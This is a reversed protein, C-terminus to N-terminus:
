LKLMLSVKKTLIHSVITENYLEDEYFIDVIKIKAKIKQKLIENQLVELSSTVTTSSHHPYLPFLIIEDNESLTYKQLVENAFPPM